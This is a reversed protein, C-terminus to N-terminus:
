KKALVSGQPTDKVTWGQEEMRCRVTDALKFDGNARAADREKQFARVEPPPQQDAASEARKRRIEEWLVARVGFPVRPFDCGGLASLPFESGTMWFREEGQRLITAGGAGDVRLSETNVDMTVATYEDIGLLVANRPLEALLSEFRMRGIFARSTDLNEGGESNNWHPIVVVKL